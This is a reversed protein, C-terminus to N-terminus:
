RERDFVGQAPEFPKFLDARDRFEAERLDDGDERVPGVDVEGPLLDVLPQAFGLEGFADAPRRHPRHRGAQALDIVVQQRALVRFIPKVSSRM